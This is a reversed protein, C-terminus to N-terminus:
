EKLQLFIEQGNRMLVVGNKVIKKVKYGHIYEGEALVDTNILAVGKNGAWSVGPLMLKITTGGAQAQVPEKPPPVVKFLRSRTQSRLRGADTAM